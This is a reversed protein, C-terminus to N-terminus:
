NLEETVVWADKFDKVKWIDNRLAEAEQKSSFAPVIQVIYLGSVKNQTIKVERHIKQKVKMEMDQAKEMTSFAGVQVFYGISKAPQKNETTKSVVVPKEESAPKDVPANKDPIPTIDLNKSNGNAPVEDFVYLSDKGAPKAQEAKTTEQSPTCGALLLAIVVAGVYLYKNM